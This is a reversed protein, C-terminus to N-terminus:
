KRTKGLFVRRRRELRDRVAKRINTVKVAELGLLEGIESDAMPTRDLLGRVESVSVELLAALQEQTAIEAVLFWDMGHGQNDAMNLLLSKRQTVSLKKIEEILLELLRRAELRDGPDQVSSLRVNDMEKVADISVTEDSAGGQRGCVATVLDSLRVPCDMSKLIFLVLEATSRENRDFPMADIASQVKAASSLNEKSAITLVERNQWISYGCVTKGQEDKWIALNEDAAFLRRIKKEQNARYRKSKRQRDAVVRYSITAVMARFNSIAHRSPDAKFAGLRILVKVLVDSSVDETDVQLIGLADDALDWRLARQLIHEVIPKSIENLLYDLCRQERQPDDARLYALLSEDIGRAKELEKEAVM